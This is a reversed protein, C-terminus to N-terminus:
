AKDNGAFEIILRKAQDKKPLNFFLESAKHALRVQKQRLAHEVIKTLLDDKTPKNWIEEAITIAFDLKNGGLAKYALTVLASDRAPKNFMEKAAEFAVSMKEPINAYEFSLDPMLAELKDFPSAKVGQSISPRVELDQLAATEALSKWEVLKEVSYRVEDSDILKGCKQCLWIGNNPSKRQESTLSSNHRPGGPAAATIHAAVGINISGAPDVQPGSTPQHCRPNSCRFGVRKAILEKTQNSFEDRM